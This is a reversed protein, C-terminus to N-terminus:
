AGQWISYGTCVVELQYGLESPTSQSSSFGGFTGTLYDADVRLMGLDGTTLASADVEIIVPTILALDERYLQGDRHIYDWTQTSPGTARVYNWRRMSLLRSAGPTLNVSSSHTGLTITRSASALVTPTLWDTDTSNPAELSVALTWDAQGVDADPSGGHYVGVLHLAVYM